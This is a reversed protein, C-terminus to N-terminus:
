RHSGGLFWPLRRRRRVTAQLTPTEDGLPVVAPLGGSPAPPVYGAPPTGTFTTGSVPAHSTAPGTAQGPRVPPAMPVAVLLDRLQEASPRSAPDNAM